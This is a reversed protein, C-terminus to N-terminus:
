FAQGIGFHFVQSPEDFQPDLNFGVDFRGVGFPTEVRLGIGVSHRIDSFSLDETQRYVNGGDWFAVGGFWKWVPFRVEQNLILVADGFEPEDFPDQPGLKDLKFGRVTTSGGAGFREDFILRRDEPYGLGIRYGSAWVIRGFSKYYFFQYYYRSFIVNGKLFSPAYANELSLFYGRHANMPDDRTDALITASVESIKDTQDFPFPNDPRPNKEKTSVRRFGYEGLIIFPGWLGFQKQLSFIARQTRFIDDADDEIEYRLSVLIDWGAPYAGRRPFWISPISYTLGAAQELSNARMFYSVSQATGFLRTDELVFDGGFDRESDYRAGYTFRYKKSETVDINVNYVDPDDSEVTEIRVQQFAQSRYLLRQSEFLKSKVLLDGEHFTLRKEIVSRRTSYNGTIRISGIRIKSGTELDYRLLLRPDGAKRVIESSADVNPYGEGEYFETVTLLDDQIAQPSYPSGPVAKLKSLLEAPFGNGNSIEMDEIRAQEHEQLIVEREATGDERFAVGGEDVEVDMFGKQVYLAEVLKKFSRFRHFADIVMESDSGYLGKLATQLEAAGFRNAGTFKVTAKPYLNGTSITFVHRIDETGETKVEVQARLYDEKWLESYLDDVIQELVAQESFGERWWEKYDKIRGGSPTYGNFVMTRKGRGNVILKLQISDDDANMEEIIVEPFLYGNDQLFAKLDL